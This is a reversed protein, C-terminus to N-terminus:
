FSPPLLPREEKIPTSQLYFSRWNILKYYGYEKFLFILSYEPLPILQKLDPIKQFIKM